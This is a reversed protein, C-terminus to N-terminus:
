KRKGGKELKLYNEFQTRLDRIADDVLYAGDGCALVLANEGSYYQKTEELSLARGYGDGYWEEIDLREMVSFDIRRLAALNILWFAFRDLELSEQYNKLPFSIELLPGPPQSPGSLDVWDIECRYGRNEFYDILSVLSSGWNIKGKCVYHPSTVNVKIPIIKYQTNMEPIPNIMCAHDGAVFRPVDPYEGGVDYTKTSLPVYPPSVEALVERLHKRGEPWGERALKVAEDFTNTGYWERDGVKQSSLEGKWKVEATTAFHLIDEMSKFKKVVPEM